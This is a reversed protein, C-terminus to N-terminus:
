TIIVAPLGEWLKFGDNVLQVAVSHHGAQSRSNNAIQLRTIKVCM